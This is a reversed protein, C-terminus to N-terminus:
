FRLIEPLDAVHDLVLDPQVACAARDGRWSGTRVLATRMGARHPGDVDAAPTDGVFLIEGARLDDIVGRGRALVAEYLARSPKRVGIESSFLTVDFFDALGQRALEARCVAPAAACNSVLGLRFGAERLRAVVEPAGPLVDLCGLWPRWFAEALQPLEGDLNPRGWRAAWQALMAPTDLETPCDVCEHRASLELFTRLLDDHAADPLQRGIARLHGCAASACAARTQDQRAVHVLTGGWDFAILRISKLTAM